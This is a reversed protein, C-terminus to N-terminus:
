KSKLVDKLSDISCNIESLANCLEANPFTYSKELKDYSIIPCNFIESKEEKLCNEYRIKIIIETPSNESSITIPISYELNPALYRLGNKIIQYESIKRKIITEYDKIIEFSVFYAAGPGYNKIKIHRYLEVEYNDDIYIGINPEYQSLRMMRTEIILKRTYWATIIAAIAVTGPFLLDKIASLEDM